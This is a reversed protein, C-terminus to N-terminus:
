MQIADRTKVIEQSTEKRPDQKGAKQDNRTCESRELVTLCELIDLVIVVFATSNGFGDEVRSGIDTKKPQTSCETHDTSQATEEQPGSPPLIINPNHVLNEQLNVIVVAYFNSVFGLGAVSFATAPRKVVM